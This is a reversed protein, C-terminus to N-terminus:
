IARNMDVSLGATQLERALVLKWDGREDLPIYLIGALDTPLEIHGRHLAVVKSRGLKGIFYGQEFIVNQRARPALTPSSSQVAGVDDPTLLVVAFPVDSYSEFKEILTKGENPQEHLIVPDLGLRELFRAVMQKTGDEHGHVLFIQLSNGLQLPQDFTAIISQQHHLATNRRNRLLELYSDVSTVGEYDVIDPSVKFQAYGTDPHWSYGFHIGSSVKLLETAITCERHGLLLESSLVATDVESKEPAEWYQVLFVHLVRVWLDLIEQSDRCGAIAELSLSTIGDTQYKDSSSFLLPYGLQKAIDYSNGLERYMRQVQRSKPWALNEKFYQFVLQLFAQQLQSLGLDLGPEANM